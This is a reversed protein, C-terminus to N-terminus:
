LKYPNELIQRGAGADKPTFFAANQLILAYTRQYGLIRPNIVSIGLLGMYPNYMNLNLSVSFAGCLSIIFTM